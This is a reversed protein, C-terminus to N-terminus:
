LVVLPGVGVRPVANLGLVVPELLAGLFPTLAAAAGLVTGIALGIVLGGLAASFTAWLHPWITGQVFLQILTAAVASPAPMYLPKLHGADATWQWVAVVAALGAAQRLGVWLRKKMGSPGRSRAVPGAVAAGAAARFGSARPRDDPRAAPAPERRLPRRDARAAWAVPSLDHGVAGASRGSRAHGAAGLHRAARGAAGSRRARARARHRRALRLARGDAAAAARAGAGPGTGRAQATRGFAPAPLARLLRLARAPDAVAAIHRHGLGPGRGQAPPGAGCEGGGHALAAARRGPVPHRDRRRRFRRHGPGFRAEALRHRRAVPEIQGLGLPRGPQRVKRQSRGPQRRRAGADRWLVVGSGQCAALTEAGPSRPTTSGRLTPM